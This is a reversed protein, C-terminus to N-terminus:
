QWYFRVIQFDTGATRALIAVYVRKYDGLQATVLVEYTSSRVDCPLGIQQPNLGTFATLQGVNQFPTDARQNIIADAMAANVGPIMQLVNRDATNINIRGNSFPTFFNTLGLGNGFNQGPAAGLGLKHHFVDPQQDPAHGSYIEPTVGKILQLESLDDIPAEKAFYPPTLGQYYDSKAGAVRPADGPNIWDLISDSVVAIDNPDREMLTLAQQLTPTNATNINVWRELDIISISVTGEGVPYNDLSVDALPGNTDCPDGLGNAWKQNLSTYPCNEQALIWAARQVGSVGMWLFQEEYGANQALRTEVKMSLAFAAALISLVVIACMVMVLAMGDSRHHLAIKM